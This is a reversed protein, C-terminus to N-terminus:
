SLGGQLSVAALAVVMVANRGVIKWSVTGSRVGGFCGCTADIGRRLALAVAVSFGALLVAGAAAVAATFLGVILLVGLVAELWPLARASPRAAWAPLIRYGDVLQLVHAPGAVIKAAAAALLVIGIAVRAILLSAELAHEM